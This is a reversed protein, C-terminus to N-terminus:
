NSLWNSPAPHTPPHFLWHIISPLAPYSPFSLFPPFLFFPSFTLYLYPLTMSVFFPFPTPIPFQTIISLPYHIVPLSYRPRSTPSSPFSPTLTSTPTPCLHLHTSSSHQLLRTLLTLFSPLFYLFLSSSIFFCFSPLLTLIIPIPRSSALFFDSVPTRTYTPQNTPQNCVVFLRCIFFLFCFFFCHFSPPPYSLIIM